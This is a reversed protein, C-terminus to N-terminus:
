KKRIKIVDDSALKGILLSSNEYHNQSNKLVKQEDFNAYCYKCLHNCSNYSGIDVMEVCNCEKQKRSRWKPYSKGTLHFAVEHSLCDNKQFGFKVLNREECCTQVVMGNNQAITSFHKGIMQYDIETFSRHKLIYSNKRVNQYDDMFSVIITKVYGKLLQCLREFARIHYEVTYKPSILIPDYRVYLQDIGVLSSLEKIAEIIEKKSPVSPEIDKQYSTLTVHFIIPKKIGKLYKLIPIPNKTCFLIADVDEFYIRSVLKPYFPNRVDVYGEQYRRMFWSAYFAVIDTRGSVNLIM